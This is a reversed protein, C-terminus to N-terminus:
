RIMIICKIKKITNTQKMAGYRIGTPPVKAVGAVVVRPRHHVPQNEYKESVRRYSGMSWEVM